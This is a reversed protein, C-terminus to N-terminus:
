APVSPTPGVPHLEEEIGLATETVEFIEQPSIPAPRNERLARGFELIEMAHGKDSKEASWLVRGDSCRVLSRYDDLVYAEGDCFVEWREKTMGEKPGLATYTLVGLSGDEYRLVASFNDNRLYPLSGPHISQAAVSSVPSGALSRFLDYIHCAEGLNRGGGDQGQIWSDPPIYGANMRYNMVLPSRRKGLAERLAQVAPAFRRNFGIMLLPPNKTQSYFRRFDALEERTLCLPKELFVHKGAKLSALAQPAHERHRTAIVVLGIDQRSLVDQLSTGLIELQRSRAFNGATVANRSVVGKLFFSERHQEMLPVLMSTGFAGVGVLVYPCAEGVGERHGRICIQRSDPPEPLQRVDDPYSLLAALPAQPGGAALRRYLDAAETIPVAPELLPDLDVKKQLLLDLYAALNRNMTWRVYPYPYDRGEEEYARDYRGPGYSTSMLLDVEKRYFQERRIDLGVDGVLVVKGKPRIWDMAQNIVENSATAATVLIRDLGHGGTFDRIMASAEASRHAGEDLGLGVARRVRDESLDFGFVRVGNARLLQVTIQGILGLGLVGIKEGLLPGARRVGQLAIAGVTGTAAWRPELGRPLRCALNRPVCVLDAHNARGAGACAVWDGPELDRIDEGIELIQGALSYGVNWGQDGLETIPLGNESPAIAQIELSQLHLQSRLRAGANSVVPIIQGGSDANLFMKERFPGAALTRNELWRSRDGSLAGLGLKGGRVEGTWVLVPILGDPISVPEALCQYGFETEDTELDWPVTNTSIKAGGTSNWRIARGAAIPVPVPAQKTSDPILSRGAKEVIQRIRRVAIGPHRAARVALGAAKHAAGLVGSAGDDQRAKLPALETGASILSFRTRVLIEGAGCRPAPMRAVVAGFSNLLVQRM